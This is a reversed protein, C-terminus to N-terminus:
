ELQHQWNGLDHDEWALAFAFPFVALFSVLFKNTFTETARFPVSFSKLSASREKIFPKFSASLHM